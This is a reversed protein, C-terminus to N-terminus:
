KEENSDMSFLSAYSDYSNKSYFGVEVDEIVELGMQEAIEHLRDLDLM